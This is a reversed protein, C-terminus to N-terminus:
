EGEVAAITRNLIDMASLITDIEEDTMRELLRSMNKKMKKHKEEFFDKYKEELAVYVVRRDEDSRIRRLIKKSEMGDLIGSVTSISLGIEDSIESVKMRGKHSLMGMIMMQDQNVELDMMAMNRLQHFDRKMHHMRGFFEIARAEIEERNKM